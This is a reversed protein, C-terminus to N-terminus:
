EIELTYKDFVRRTYVSFTEPLEVDIRQPYAILEDISFNTMGLLINPDNYETFLFIMERDGLWNTTKLIPNIKFTMLSKNKEYVLSVDPKSIKTWKKEVIRHLVDDIRVLQNFQREINKVITGSELDVKYSKLTSIGNYIEEALDKSAKIKGPGDVTTLEYIFGQEDFSIFYEEEKYQVTKLFEQFEKEAQEITKEM